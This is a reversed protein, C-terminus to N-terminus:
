PSSLAQVANRFIFVRATNGRRDSPTLFFGPADSDHDTSFGSLDRGDRLTVRLLRGHGIPPSGGPPVMFFIAKLAQTPLEEPRGDPPELLLTSSALDADRLTGRKVQGELTHLVVRHAGQMKLEGPVHSDLVAPLDPDVAQELSLELTEEGDDEIDLTSLDVELLPKPASPRPLFMERTSSLEVPPPEPERPASPELEAEELKLDVPPGSPFDFAVEPPPAEVDLSPPLTHSLAEELESLPQPPASTEVEEVADDDLMPVDPLLEPSSELSESSPALPVWSGDALYYGAEAFAPDLGLADVAEWWRAQEEPTLTGQLRREELPGLVKMWASTDSM